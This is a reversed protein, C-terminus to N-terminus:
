RIVVSGAPATLTRASSATFTENYTGAVISVQSGSSAANLGELVTDYPHGITGDESLPFPHGADVYRVNAGPFNDLANYFASVSLATGSNAGGIATCGGNAHVGVVIGVAQWIIPSGSNGGTTDATYEHFIDAAVNGHEHGADRRFADAADRECRQQRGDHGGAPQGDRLGTVQIVNAFPPNFDSVRFPLGYAEHPMLGTTANPQVGFVAWDKGLGQCAGDFRWTVSALNIPYQDNPNAMVPTGNAQSAPVNFEVVGALDLVGDPLLPACPNAPTGDPRLGRLPRRDRVRRQHRPVRYLWRLVTARRRNDVTAVRNDVLGCITEFSPAAVDPKGAVIWALEFAVDRDGPAAHLQVIVTDGNFIASNKSWQGFSVADLQQYGNDRPAFLSLYSGRGLHADRFVLRVWPAGSVRVTHEFVM